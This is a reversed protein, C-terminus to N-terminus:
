PKDEGLNRDFTLAGAITGYQAFASYAVLFQDEDSLASFQQTVASSALSPNTTPDNQRVSVFLAVDCPVQIPVDLAYESNQDRYNYRLEHINGLSAKIAKGWPLGGHPATYATPATPPGAITEYLLAPSKSMRFIVGDTNAPNRTDTQRKDIIMVHWSIDGDPPHWLPSKIEKRFTVTSGTPPGGSVALPATGAPIRAVMEAYQRIGVLRVGREGSQFSARALMMLFRNGGLAATPTSPVVLGAGVNTGYPDSKIFGFEASPGAAVIEFRGELLSTRLGQAVGGAYDQLQLIKTGRMVGGM